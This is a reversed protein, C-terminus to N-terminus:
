RRIVALWGLVVATPVAIAPVWIVPPIELLRPRAGARHYRRLMLFIHPGMALDAVTLSWFAWTQGRLLGFWVLALQALGFSVMLGALWDFMLIKQTMLPEDIEHSVLVSGFLIRDPRPHFLGFGGASNGRRIAFPVFTGVAISLVGYLAFLAAAAFLSGSIM